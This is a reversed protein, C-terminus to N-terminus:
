YWREYPRACCSGEELVLILTNALYKRKCSCCVNVSMYMGNGNNDKIADGYELKSFDVDTMPIMGPIAYLNGGLPTKRLFEM